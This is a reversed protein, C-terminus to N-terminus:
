YYITIELRNFNCMAVMFIMDHLKNVKIKYKSKSKPKSKPMRKLIKLKPKLKLKLIRFQILIVVM